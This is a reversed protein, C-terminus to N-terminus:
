LKVNIRKLQENLNWNDPKIVQSSFWNAGEEIWEARYEEVTMELNDDHFGSEFGCCDCIAYTPYGKDDWQPYEMQNYGCVACIYM